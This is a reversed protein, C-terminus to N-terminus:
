LRKITYRQTSRRRILSRPIPLAQYLAVNILHNDKYCGAHGQQHGPQNQHYCQPSAAAMMTRGIRCMTLSGAGGVMAKQMRAYQPSCGQKLAFTASERPSGVPLRATTFTPPHAKAARAHFEVILTVACFKPCSDFRVCLVVCHSQVKRLLNIAAVLRGESACQEGSFGIGLCFRDYQM